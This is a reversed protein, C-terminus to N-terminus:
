GEPLLLSPPGVNLVSSTRGQTSLSLPELILCLLNIKSLLLLLPSLFQFNCFLADARLLATSDNQPKELLPHARLPMAGWQFIMAQHAVTVHPPPM